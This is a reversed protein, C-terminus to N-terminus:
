FPQDLSCFRFQTMWQPSPKETPAPDSSVNTGPPIAPCDQMSGLLSKAFDQINLTSDKDWNSNYGFSHIRVDKFSADQPLWEQPWYLSPDLAKTWTSRSGGGLGHVFVLDAVVMGTPDSLTNLGFPGKADQSSDVSTGGDRRTFNRTLFSRGPAASTM